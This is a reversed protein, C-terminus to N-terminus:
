IKIETEMLTRRFHNTLIRIDRDTNQLENWKRETIDQFPWTGDTWACFPMLQRLLHVVLDTTWETDKGKRAFLHDMVFGMTVIGVGHMLRSHDPSLGWASPFVRRVADWYTSVLRVMDMQGEQTDQKEMYLAFLAGDSLSNLLMKRISNDKIVGVPCTPTKIMRYLASDAELNLRITLAAALRQRMLAEPLYGEIEPLLEYILGQPLPKTRNVLVFQRRQEAIDPVIMATVFVPFQTHRCSAIAALRQQGDVVFGPRKEGEPTLPVVLQGSQSIGNNNTVVDFHVRDDFAIVLTNPLV